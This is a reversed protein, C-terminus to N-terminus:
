RGLHGEEALDDGLKHARIMGEVTMLKRPQVHAEQHPMGNGLLLGADPQIKWAEKPNVIFTVTDTTCEASSDPVMYRWMQPGPAERNPAQLCFKM